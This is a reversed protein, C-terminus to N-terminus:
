KFILFFVLSTNNFYPLSAIYSIPLHIFFGSLYIITIKELISGTSFNEIM